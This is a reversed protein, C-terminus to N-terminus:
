SRSMSKKLSLYDLFYTFRISVNNNQPAQITQRYSTFYDLSANNSLTQISDKWVLNFFSGPAIQLFYVFDLNLANFNTDHLRNGDIDSGSYASYQLEGTDSLRYFQDYQVKSWYHRIRLNVGMKANFTYNIGAVNTATRINREGFIIEPSSASEPQQKTVYGRSGNTEEGNVEVNFSLKNNVRYRLYVGLWDSRQDWDERKWRGSYVNAKLPKRSDSEVSVNFSNSSPLQLFYGDTRPEFFDRSGMPRLSYRFGVGWFNRFQAHSSASFELTSFERPAFLQDHFASLYTNFRNFVGFPKFMNFRVYGYHSVENPARLYGLDNVQFNKSEVLRSIGYQWKGSVKGAEMTYKFGTDNGNVEGPNRRSVNSIAGFLRVRYRLTRDNLSLSTGSVTADNGGDARIVSTTTFNINSNNRMNQDVVMVNFNTVPDVDVERIGGNEKNRIRAKTKNTVANFFGLGLGKKNRGSIKTANLLNAANPRSVVEEKESDYSISGFTSGVRRSYFMNGKNFLETGETFFSRNENFRVEFASLNLVVNDSQVQSFDPILSMDLTYSENIGYKVDMGGTISFDENGSAGTHNYISTLYPSFSLRLPPQIKEIGQLVGSQNVIGQVSNDIHNWYSEEQNRKVSRFFNVGWEQVDQRPFRIAYYPIEIEVTWGHEDIKVASNWVADWNGDWFGGTLFFDGQVGAASVFFTFASIGSNYPDLLIGFWDANRGMEDRRGLEHLIKKPEQDFLRAAVYLAKDTYIIQVTTEFASTAGNDPQFKVFNHREAKTNWLNEDLIGDIKPAHDVRIAKQVRKSPTNNGSVTTSVLLLSFIVLLYVKMM